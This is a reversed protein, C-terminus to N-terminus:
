LKSSLCGAVQQRQSGRLKSPFAYIKRRKFKKHASSPCLSCQPARIVEYKALNQSIELMSSVLAGMKNSNKVAGKGSIQM